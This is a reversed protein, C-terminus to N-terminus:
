TGNERKTNFGYYKSIRQKLKELLYFKLSGNREFTCYPLYFPLNDFAKKMNGSVFYICWCDQSEPSYTKSIDILDDYPADRDVPRAMFFHDPSASVYGNLLHSDLIYYFTEEGKEQGFKNCYWSLAEVSPNNTVLSESM